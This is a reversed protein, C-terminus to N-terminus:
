EQRLKTDHEGTMIIAKALANMDDAQMASSISSDLRPTFIKPLRNETKLLLCLLSCSLAQQVKM